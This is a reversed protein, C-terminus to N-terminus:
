QKEFVSRPTEVRIGETEYRRFDQENLTLIRPINNTLMIAVLRADHVSAGIVGHRAVVEKWRVHSEQSETVLRCVRELFHVRSEVISSSLGYGGRALVPRTSVNHFEAINQATTFMAERERMLRRLSERIVVCEPDAPVFARLLIGTDVLISM